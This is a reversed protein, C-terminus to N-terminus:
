FHLNQSTSQGRIVSDMVALHKFGVCQSPPKRSICLEQVRALHDQYINGPNWTWGRRELIPIDDVKTKILQQSVWFSKILHFICGIIKWYSEPKCTLSLFGLWFFTFWFFFSEYFWTCSCLQTGPIGLLTALEDWSAQFKGPNLVSLGSSQSVAWHLSTVMGWPQTGRLTQKMKERQQGAKEM